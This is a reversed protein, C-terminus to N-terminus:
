RASETLETRVYLSLRELKLTVLAAMGAHTLGDCDFLELEKLTEIGALSRLISTSLECVSLELKRLHKCHRLSSFRTSHQNFELEVYSFELEELL